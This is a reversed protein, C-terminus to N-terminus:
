LNKMKNEPQSNKQSHKEINAYLTLDFTTATQFFLLASTHLLSTFGFVEARPTSDSDLVNEVLLLEDKNCNVKASKFISFDDIVPEFLRNHILAV